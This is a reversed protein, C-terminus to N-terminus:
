VSLWGARKRYVDLRYPLMDHLNDGNPKESTITISKINSGCQLIIGVETMVNVITGIWYTSHKKDAERM